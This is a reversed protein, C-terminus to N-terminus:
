TAGHQLSFLFRHGGIFGFLVLGLSRRGVILPLYSGICYVAKGLVFHLYIKERCACEM